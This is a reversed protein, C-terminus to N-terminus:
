HHASVKAKPVSAPAEFNKDHLGDGHALVFLGFLVIAFVTTFALVKYILPREGNLHMFILGVLSAKFTAVAMGIIMNASDGFWLSFDVFSLAVTIFTMVVLTGGIIMYTRIHSSIDHADHGM